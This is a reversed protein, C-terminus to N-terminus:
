FVYESELSVTGPNRNVEVRQKWNRARRMAPLLLTPADKTHDYFCLSYTTDANTLLALFIKRIFGRAEEREEVLKLATVEQLPVLEHQHHSDAAHYLFLLKKHKRDLAVIRSDFVEVHDVLLKHKMVMREYALALALQGSKKKREKMLQWVGVLGLLLILLLIIVVPEM